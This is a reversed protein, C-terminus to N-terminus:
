REGTRRDCRKCRCSPWDDWMTWGGEPDSYCDIDDVQLGCLTRGDPRVVHMAGASAITCRELDVTTAATM